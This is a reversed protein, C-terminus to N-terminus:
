KARLVTGDKRVFLAEAFGQRRVEHQFRRFVEDELEGDFGTYYNSMVIRMPSDPKGLKNVRDEYQHRARQVDRYVFKFEDKASPNRVAEPSKIECLNDNLDIDVNETGGQNIMLRSRVRFGNESLMDHVFVDKKENDKGTINSLAYRESLPLDENIIEGYQQRTKESYDIDPPVMTKLWQRDRTNMEDVIRNACWANYEDADYAGSKLLRRKEAMLEHEISERCMSYTEYMIEPEYGEVTTEGNVGPVVLCTCNHHNAAAASEESLYDFGRSALMVCWGCPDPRQPVRAFRVRKGKKTKADRQVNQAVTERAARRTEDSVYKGVQELFGERDPAASDLRGVLRRVTGDIKGEDPGDYITAPPVDISEGAMVEDYLRTANVSAADGYRMLAARVAAKAFERCEAITADPNVSMWLAIDANASASAEDALDALTKAYAQIEHLKVRM